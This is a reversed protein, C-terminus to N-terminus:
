AEFREVEARRRRDLGRQVPSGPSDWKLFETAAGEYDGALFRRLLTSPQGSRLRLIGDRAFSGAGVNFTVSVLADFQGQSCPHGAIADDVLVEFRGVDDLLVQDAHEQTWVTGPRVDLGTHGWGCTWPDGGTKPDPYADLRCSEFSKILEIGAPSVRMRKGLWNNLDSM